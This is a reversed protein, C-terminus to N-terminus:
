NQNIQNNNNNSSSCRDSSQLFTQGSGPTTSASTARKPFGCSSRTTRPGPLTLWESGSESLNPVQHLPTWCMWPCHFSLLCHHSAITERSCLQGAQLVSSRIQPFLTSLWSASSKKVQGRPPHGKVTHCASSVPRLPPPLRHRHHRPVWGGRRGGGQGGSATRPLDAGGWGDRLCVKSLLWVKHASGSSFLIVSQTVTAKSVCLVPLLIQEARPWTLFKILFGKFENWIVDQEQNKWMELLM